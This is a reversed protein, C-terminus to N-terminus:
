GDHEGVAQLLQPEVQEYAEAFGTLFCFEVKKAQFGKHDILAWGDDGQSKGRRKVSVIPSPCFIWM